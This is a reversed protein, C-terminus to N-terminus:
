VSTVRPTSITLQTRDGLGTIDKALINELSKALHKFSYSKM